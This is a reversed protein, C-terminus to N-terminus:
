RKVEHEATAGESLSRRARTALAADRITGLLEVRLTKREANLGVESGERRV